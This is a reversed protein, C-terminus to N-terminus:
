ERSLHRNPKFTKSGQANSLLVGLHTLLSDTHRLLDSSAFSSAAQLRLCDLKMGEYYHSAEGSSTSIENLGTLALKMPNSNIDLDNIRAIEDTLIETLRPVDFGHIFSRYYDAIISSSVLHIFTPEM